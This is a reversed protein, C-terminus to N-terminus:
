RNILLPANKYYEPNMELNYIVNQLLYSLKINRTDPADIRTIHIHLQYTSPPYHISMKIDRESLGYVSRVIDFGKKLTNRLLPLHEGRLDRLSRLKEDRIIILLHFKNMDVLNWHYNLIIIINDDIYLIDDCENEIINQIWSTNNVLDLNSLRSIYDSYNWEIMVRSNNNKENGDM